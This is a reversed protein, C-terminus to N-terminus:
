NNGTAEGLWPLGAELLGFAREAAAMADARVEDVREGAAIRRWNDEALIRRVAVIQGAALRADLDGGLAGALAAESRRLYEHMRAVLAPTGYLLRHFALVEPHDNLGTIPDCQGLGDLFHRRLAGLPSAAGTVVRAAEDEHDAIRHLVLDEKAPFYRFLTPKSIGAAAAVEAVSVADFGKELFLRVAIDSVDKYMRRKKRERLGIQEDM